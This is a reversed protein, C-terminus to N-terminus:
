PTATEAAAPTTAPEWARELVSRVTGQKSPFLHAYTDWTEGATAHGLQAQVVKVSEGAEILLSAVHHRLAHLGGRSKPLGAREVTGHWMAALGTRHVPNGSATAFVLRARHESTGPTDVVPLLVEVAPWQQLHRALADLAYQPVEVTRRSAETKPPGFAFRKVGGEPPTFQVLQREVRITRKLFNVSGLDLGLLEGGRMGTAAGLVLLARYRPPAAACLRQVEEITLPVVPDSKVNKLKIAAFPIDARIKDAVAANIITRFLSHIGYVTWPRYERELRSLWARWESHRLDRIPRDGFVPYVHLRLRQEYLDKTRERHGGGALWQEAYQRVTVKGASPSAWTGARLAALQELRWAVADAQKDFTKSRPKRDLDRYRAIWRGNATATVGTSKRAM